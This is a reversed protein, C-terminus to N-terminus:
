QKIRICFINEATRFVILVFFLRKLAKAVFEAACQLQNEIPNAECAKVNRELSSHVRATIFIFAQQKVRAM